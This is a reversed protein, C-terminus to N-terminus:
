SARTQVRWRVTGERTGRGNCSVRHRRVVTRPAFRGREVARWRRDARGSRGGIVRRQCTRGGRRTKPSSADWSRRVPPGRRSTISTSMCGTTSMGPYGLGPRIGSGRFGPVDWVPDRIQKTVHRSTGFRTGYRTRSIGPCGLGPRAGSPRHGGAHRRKPPPRPSATGRQVTRWWLKTPKRGTRSAPRKAGILVTM